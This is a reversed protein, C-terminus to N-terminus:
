RRFKYDLFSKVGDEFGDSAESSSVAGIDVGGEVNEFALVVCDLAGAFTAALRWYSFVFLSGQRGGPSGELLLEPDPATQAVGVDQGERCDEFGVAGDVHHGFLKVHSEVGEDSAITEQLLVSRSGEQSVDQLADAVHV